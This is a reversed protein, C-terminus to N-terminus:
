EGPGELGAIADIPSRGEHIVNMLGPLYLDMLQVAPYIANKVLGATLTEGGFDLSSKYRVEGDDFDMELNGIRLGYNVRTIFEAVASRATEPARVSAIVYFLLQEYDVLIAALCTMQGNKGAFGMRYVHEEGIQQPYWGDADLFEGLTTFAQLSNDSPSILEPNDM